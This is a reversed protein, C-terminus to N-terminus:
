YAWSLNKYVTFGVQAFQESGISSLTLCSFILDFYLRKLLFPVNFQPMDVLHILFHSRPSHGTLWTVWSSIIGQVTAEWGLSDVHPQFNTCYVITQSTCTRARYGLCCHSHLQFPTYCDGTFYHSSPVNGCVVLVDNVM